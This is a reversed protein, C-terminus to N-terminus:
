IKVTRIYLTNDKSAKRVGYSKLAITKYGPNKAFPHHLPYDIYKNGDQCFFNGLIYASGNKAQRQAATHNALLQWLNKIQIIENYALIM